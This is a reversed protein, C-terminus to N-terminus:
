SNKGPTNVIVTKRETYQELGFEGLDRGQGSMKYGGFPAAPDIANYCNVYVTGARLEHGTKFAKEIDKTFVSAALGYHNKNARAIVEDINKFKAIQMVPGFIEENFVRMSDKVDSFITPQFYYGKDGHKTGGTALTAGEDKGSQCLETIKELQELSVQPGQETDADFPDGLKRKQARAVSAEVFKDYIAEEIYLRSGAACCQGQNFFLAFHSMEVAYDFDCDAFVVNPSKGGLELSVNKVNGSAMSHILQGVETSGTFAVKDIHDHGAIAAGATPGYGSLINVVGPPFGAEKTLQAVHNASLPTQEATKMVVTNGMALAPALKWAQMALPFNWPIIQGCVGVPEHRTYAFYDGDIPITQGHRKGAWGAFYRYTKISLPVDVFYADQYPKGNDLTELAALYARDREM